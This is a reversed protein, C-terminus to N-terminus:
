SVELGRARMADVVVPRYVARDRRLGLMVALLARLDPDLRQTHEWFEPAEEPEDCLWPRDHMLNAIGDVARAARRADTHEADIAIDVLRRTASTPEPYAGPGSPPYSGYRMWNAVFDDGDVPHRRLGLADLIGDRNLRNDDSM